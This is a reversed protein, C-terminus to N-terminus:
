KAVCFKYRTGSDSRRTQFWGWFRSGDKFCSTLATSRNWTRRGLVHVNRVRRRNKCKNVNKNKLKCKFHCFIWVKIRREEVESRKRGVIWSVFTQSCLAPEAGPEAGPGSQCNAGESCAFFSPSTKPNQPDLTSILTWVPWVRVSQQKEVFYLLCYFLFM